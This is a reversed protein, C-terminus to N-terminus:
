IDLRSIYIAERLIEKYEDLVEFVTGSYYESTCTGLKSGNETTKSVTRVNGHPYNSRINNVYGDTPYLHFLDAKMPSQEKFWSQPITHERNYSDGEKKYNAGQKSGGCEYEYNSYMDYIINTTGPKIDTTKFATWAGKYTVDNTDKSIVNYISTMFDEGELSTNVNRYYLTDDNEHTNIKEKSSSSSVESSSSSIQESTVLDSSSTESSSFSSELNSSSDEKSSSSIQSCSVFTTILILTLLINKKNKM